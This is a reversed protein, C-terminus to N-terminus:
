LGVNVYDPAWNRCALNFFFFASFQRPQCHGWAGMHILIMDKVIPILFFIGDFILKHNFFFRFRILVCLIM